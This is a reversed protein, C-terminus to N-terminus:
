YTFALAHTKVINQSAPGAHVQLRNGETNSVKLSVRVRDCSGLDATTLYLSNTATQHHKRESINWSAVASKLPSGCRTGDSKQPQAEIWTSAKTHHATPDAPDSCDDIGYNPSVGDKDNNCSTVNADMVIAIDGTGGPTYVHDLVSTTTGPTLAAPDAGGLSWRDMASYVARALTAGAEVRMTATDDADIWTAYPLVSIRCRYRDATPAIFTWRVSPLLATDVTPVFNAAWYSGTEYGSPLARGDAYMCRLAATVGVNRHEALSTLNRVSVDRSWLYSKAGAAADFELKTGPVDAYNAPDATSHASVDFGPSTMPDAGGTCVKDLTHWPSAPNVADTDSSAGGARVSGRLTRDASSTGAGTDFQYVQATVPLNNVYSNIGNTGEGLGYRGLWFCTNTSAASFKLGRLQTSSYLCLRDAPCEEAAAAPSASGVLGAFLLGAVALLSSVKARIDM